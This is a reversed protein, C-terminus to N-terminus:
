KLLPPHLHQFTLATAFLGLAKPKNALVISAALAASKQDSTWPPGLARGGAAIQRSNKAAGKGFAAEACKELDRERIGTVAINLQACANWLAERFFDGEASHILAHSALIKDLAPLPRGSAMVVACGAVQYRRSNLDTLVERIASEALRESAVFCKSIFKEADPYEFKEAFHYPQKSGPTGPSILEIRRRDIVKVSEGDKAVAVLASWGSHTRIGIAARKM